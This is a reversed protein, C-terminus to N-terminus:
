TFKNSELARLGHKLFGLDNKNGNMFIYTFFYFLLPVLFPSNLFLFEGYFMKAFASMCM